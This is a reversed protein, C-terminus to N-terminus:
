QPAISEDCAKRVDAAIEVPDGKFFARRWLDNEFSEGACDLLIVGVLLRTKSLIYGWGPRIGTDHPVHRPIERFCPIVSM